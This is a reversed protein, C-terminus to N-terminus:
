PPTVTSLIEGFKSFLPGGFFSTSLGFFWGGGGVSASITSNSRLFISSKIRSTDFHPLYHNFLWEIYLINIQNMTNIAMAEEWAIRGLINWRELIFSYERTFSFSKYFYGGGGSVSYMTSGYGDGSDLGEPMSDSYKYFQSFEMITETTPIIAM